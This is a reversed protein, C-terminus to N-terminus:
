VQPRDQAPLPAQPCVNIQDAAAANGANPAADIAWSRIAASGISNKILRDFAKILDGYIRFVQESFHRLRNIRLLFGCFMNFKLTNLWSIRRGYLFGRFSLFGRRGSQTGNFRSLLTSRPVAWEM